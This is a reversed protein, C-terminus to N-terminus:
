KVPKSLHGFPYTLGTSRYRPRNGCRMHGSFQGNGDNFRAGVALVFGDANLDLAFGARDDEAAGQVPVKVRRRRFWDVCHAHRRLLAKHVPREGRSNEANFPVRRARLVRLAGITGHYAAM